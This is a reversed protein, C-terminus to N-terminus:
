MSMPSRCRAGSANNFSCMFWARLCLACRSARRLRSERLLRSDRPPCSDSLGCPPPLDAHWLGLPPEERWLRRARLSEASGAPDSALDKVLVGREEDAVRDRLCEEPAELYFIQVHSKPLILPHLVLQPTVADFVSCCLCCPADKTASSFARQAARAISSLCHEVLTVRLAPRLSFVCGDALLEIRPANSVHLLRLVTPSVFSICCRAWCFMSSTLFSDLLLRPCLRPEPGQVSEHRLM